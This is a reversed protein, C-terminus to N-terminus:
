SMLASFLPKLIVKFNNPGAVFLVRHVCLHTDKLAKM